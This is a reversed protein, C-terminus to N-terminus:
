LSKSAMGALDTVLRIEVSQAELTMQAQMHALEALIEPVAHGSELHM